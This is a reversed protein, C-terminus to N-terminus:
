IRGQLNRAVIVIIIIDEFRIAKVMVGDLHIQVASLNARCMALAAQTVDSGVALLEKWIHPATSSVQM